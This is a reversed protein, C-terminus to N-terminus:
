WPLNSYLSKKKNISLFPENLSQVTCYKLITAVGVEELFRNMMPNCQAIQSVNDLVESNWHIAHFPNVTYHLKLLKRQGLIQFTFILFYKFREAAVSGRM